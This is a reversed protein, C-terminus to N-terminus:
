EERNHAHQLGTKARKKQEKGREPRDELGPIEGPTGVPLKLPVWFGSYTVGIFETFM